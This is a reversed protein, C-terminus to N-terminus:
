FHEKCEGCINSYIIPAGCCPSMEFDDDEDRKFLEVVMDGSKFASEIRNLRIVVSIWFCMNLFIFIEWGPFNQPELFASYLHSIYEM